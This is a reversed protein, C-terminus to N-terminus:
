LFVDVCCNYPWLTHGLTPEAPNSACVFMGEQVCVYACTSAHVFVNPCVCVFGGPNTCVCRNNFMKHTHTHTEARKPM